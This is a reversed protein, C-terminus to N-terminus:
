ELDRNAHEKHPDAVVKGDVRYFERMEHIEIIGLRWMIWKDLQETTDLPPLASHVDLTTEKTPDYADPVVTTIVFHQGEWRGNYCKFSWGPKYTVKSLHENIDQTSLMSLEIMYGRATDVTKPPM